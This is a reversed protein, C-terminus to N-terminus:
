WPLPCRSTEEVAMRRRRAVFRWDLRRRRRARRALEDKRSLRPSRECVLGLDARVRASTSRMDSRVETWRMEIDRMAARWSAQGRM